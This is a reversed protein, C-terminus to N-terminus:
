PYAFIVTHVIEPFVQPEPVSVNNASDALNAAAVM